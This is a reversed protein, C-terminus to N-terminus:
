SRQPATSTGQPIKNRRYTLIILYAGFGGLVLLLIAGVILDSRNSNLSEHILLLEAAPVDRALLSEVTYRGDYPIQLQFLSVGLAANLRAVEPPFSVQTVPSGQEDSIVVSVDQASITAGKKPPLLGIYLGEKMTITQRGPLAVKQVGRTASRLASGLAISMVLLGLGILAAGFGYGWLYAQSKQEDKMMIPHKKM